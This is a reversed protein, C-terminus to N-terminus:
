HLQKSEDLMFQMWRDVCDCATSPMVHHYSRAQEEVSHMMSKALMERQAVTYRSGDVVTQAWAKRMGNVTINGGLHRSMTKTLWRGFSSTTHPANRKSDIFLYNRPWKALSSRLADSVNSPLPEQFRNYVTANGKRRKAGTKYENLILTACGERPVVVYNRDQSPDAVGDVTAGVGDALIRIRGWDNRKAPVRAAILMWLREQSKELTSEADDAVDLADAVSQLKNLDPISAIEQSTPINNKRARMVEDSAEELVRGWFQRTHDNGLCDCHRLAANVISVKSKFSYINSYHVRIARLLDEPDYVIRAAISARNPYGDRNGHVERRLHDLTSKYSKWTEVGIEDRAHAADLSQYLKHDLSDLSDLPGSGAGLLAPGRRARETSAEASEGTTAIAVRSTERVEESSPDRVGWFERTANTSIGIRANTRADLDIAKRIACTKDRATCTNPWARSIAARLESSHRAITDVLSTGPECATEKIRQLNGKVNEHTTKSMGGSALEADVADFLPRDRASSAQEVPTLDVGTAVVNWVRRRDEESGLQPVLQLTRRVALRKAQQTKTNPWERRIRDDLSPSENNIASTLSGSGGCARAKVLKLAGKTDLLKRKTIEDRSYADDLAKFLSDDCDGSMTLSNPNCRVSATAKYIDGFRSIRAFHHM